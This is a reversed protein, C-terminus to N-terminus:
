LKIQREGMLKFLLSGKIKGRSEVGRTLFFNVGIRHCTKMLQKKKFPEPFAILISYTFSSRLIEFVPVELPARSAQRRYCRQWYNLGYIKWIHVSWWLFRKEELKFIQNILYAKWTNGQSVILRILTKMSYEKLNKILCHTYNNILNYDEKKHPLFLKIPLFKNIM